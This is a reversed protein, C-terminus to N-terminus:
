ENNRYIENSWIERSIERCQRYTFLISIQEPTGQLLEYQVTAAARQSTGHLRKLRQTVKIIKEM